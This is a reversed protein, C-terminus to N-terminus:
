RYAGGRSLKNIVAIFLLSILMLVLAMSWLANNWLSGMVSHGMEMTIGSTLTVTQDLLSHPITKKNGIVMQVALAEGFARALGLIIATAIGSRAAPLLAYRITQWKTAGLAFSAQKLDAPLNRLADLSVSTITPLIMVSLVLSGALWSFGLGGFHNRIYPVLVSLGVWGYVVSPIGVFIELAGQLVKRGFAPSIEAMFVAAAISFFSSILVALSCVLVSGAMFALIGVVPGGEAEPRDPLWRVDGFFQAPSVRNVIFTALGRSSVFLFIAVISFVLISACVVLMTRALRDSYLRKRLNLAPM